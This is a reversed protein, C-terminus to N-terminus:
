LVTLFIILGSKYRFSVAMDFYTRAKLYTPLPFSPCDCPSILDGSNDVGGGWLGQLTEAKRKKGIENRNRRNRQMKYANQSNGEVRLFTVTLGRQQRVSRVDSEGCRCHLLGCGSRGPLVGEQSSSINFAEYCFSLM